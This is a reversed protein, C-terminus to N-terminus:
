KCGVKKGNKVGKVGKMPHKSGFDSPHVWSPTKKTLQGNMYRKYFNRTRPQAYPKSYFVKQARAEGFMRADGQWKLLHFLKDHLRKAIRQYSAKNKDHCVLLNNMESSDKKINYLENAPRKGMAHFWYKSYKPDKRHNLIWTKTPSGDIDLYGTEPNGAPWRDSKFNHLYEYKDTIIGRIPYGWDHPRGVDFREKGVIVCDRAAFVRGTQGSKFIGVLSRGTIRQMGTQTIPNIGAIQLFTPALDIHSVFDTVKRGPNKIGGKWMIALPVRSGALYEQGKAGPFSFGHDSTSVIITNKLLGRKKLLDLIRGLHKDFHEVEFAYDLLDIRTTDNNPLYKPVHKIHSPKLGGKTIGSRWAFQRHPELAGYWFFFPTDKPKNNLFQKFNSAYDINSIDRTPPTLKKQNYPQGALWRTHGDVKGRVGPGWAKGTYGTFYGHKKLVEAFTEFRKPFYPVHNVANGLQWPNRGTLIASRGPACKASPTYANTFLIGHDAIRDFAPTKIWGTGYAGYFPSSDDTTALLINPRKAEGKYTTTKRNTTKNNSCSLLSTFLLLMLLYFGCCKIYNSKIM